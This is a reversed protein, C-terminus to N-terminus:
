AIKSLSKELLKLDVMVDDSGCYKQVDIGKCDLRLYDIGFACALNYFADQPHDEHIIDILLKGEEMYMLNSFGAGHIGALIKVNTLLNIQETVTLGELQIKLFGHEKLLAYVEDENIARRFIAQKRSIFVRDYTSVKSTPQTKNVQSKIYSAVQRILPENHRLGPATHMPLYLNEALILEDDKITIIEKFNFFSLYQEIFPRLQEHILLKLSPAWEKVSYIRPLAEMTWHYYNDYYANHAILCDGSVKKVKNFIIKKYFTLANKNKTFMSYVSEKIVKGNKFVIGYPSVYANPLECLYCSEVHDELRIFKKANKIEIYNVPPKRKIILKDYLLTKKM